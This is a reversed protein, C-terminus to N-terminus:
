TLLLLRPCVRSCYPSSHLGHRRQGSIRLYSEVDGKEIFKQLMPMPFKAARYAVEAELRGREQERMREILERQLAQQM